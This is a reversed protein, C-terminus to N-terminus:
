HLIFYVDGKDKNICYNCTACNPSIGSQEPCIIGASIRNTSLVDDDSYVISKRWDNPPDDMTNDWSAFLQLNTSEKLLQLDNILDTKIWSRTYAWYKVQPTERIIESWFQIYDKSFFDGSSHIRVAISSSASKLKELLKAKLLKPDELFFKLNKNWEHIPFKEERLDANYCHRLCWQSAGPCTIVVPLNWVYVMDYYESQQGIKSNGLELLPADLYSIEFDLKRVSLLYEQRWDLKENSPISRKTLGRNKTSLPM